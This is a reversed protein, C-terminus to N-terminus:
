HDVLSPATGLKAYIMVTCGHASRGGPGGGRGTAALMPIQARNRKRILCYCIEDRVVDYDNVVAYEWATAGAYGVDVAIARRRLGVAIADALLKEDEAELTRM